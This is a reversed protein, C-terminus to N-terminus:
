GLAEFLTREAGFASTTTNWRCEVPGFAAAASIARPCCEVGAHRHVDVHRLCDAQMVRM